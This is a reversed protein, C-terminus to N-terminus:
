DLRDEETADDAGHRRDTMSVMLANRHAPAASQRANALTRFRTLRGEIESIVCARADEYAQVRGMDFISISAHCRQIVDRTLVPHERMADPIRKAVYDVFQRESMYPTTPTATTPCMSEFMTVRDFNSPPNHRQM